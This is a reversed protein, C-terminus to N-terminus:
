GRVVKASPIDQLTFNNDEFRKALAKIKSAKLLAYPLIALEKVARVILNGVSVGEIYNSILTDGMGGYSRYDDTTFRNLFPLRKRLLLLESERRGVASRHNPFTPTFVWNLNINTDALTEVAHIWYRPLFLMEGESTEFTFVDYTKSNPVFNEDVLSVFMLPASPLPTSPSVLTWRKRGAIQLNFGHLSNGDYHYLTKHANPQMFIRAPLDRMSMDKRGLVKRVLDPVFAVTEPLTADFWGINRRDEKKFHTYIFEPTIKKFEDKVVGTLVVPKEPLLYDQVFRDYDLSDIPIKEIELQM